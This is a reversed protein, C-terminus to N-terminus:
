PQERAGVVWAVPRGAMGAARVPDRGAEVGSRFREVLASVAPM